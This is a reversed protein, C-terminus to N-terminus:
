DGAHPPSSSWSRRHLSLLDILELHGAPQLLEEAVAEIRLLCGADSGLQELCQLRVQGVVAGLLERLSKLAGRLLQSRTHVPTPKQAHHEPQHVFGASWGPKPALV